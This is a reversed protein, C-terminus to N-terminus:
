MELKKYIPTITMSCLYGFAMRFAMMCWYLYQLSLELM